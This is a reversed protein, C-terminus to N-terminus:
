RIINVCRKTHPNMEKGPPCVKIPAAKIEVNEMAIGKAIPLIQNTTKKLNVTKCKFKADRTQKPKCMKVCRKTYPNMEKGPPCNVLEMNVIDQIIKEPIKVPEKAITEIQTQINTPVSIHQDSVIEHHIIQLKHKSLLGSSSLIVEYRNLVDDVKLRKSIDPTIMLYFLRKLEQSFIDNDMNMYGITNSYAHLLAIGTGYSDIMDVSREIFANYVNDQTPNDYGHVFFSYLDTLFEQKLDAHDSICSQDLFVQIM